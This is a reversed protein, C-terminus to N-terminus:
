HASKFFRERHMRSVDSMRDTGLMENSTPVGFGGGTQSRDVVSKMRRTQVIMQMVIRTRRGCRAFMQDTRVGWLIDIENEFVCGLRPPFIPVDVTIRGHVFVAQIGGQTGCSRTDQRDILDHSATHLVGETGDAGWAM